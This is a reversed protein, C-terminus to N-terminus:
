SANTAAAVVAVLTLFLSGVVGRAAMAPGIIWSAEGYRYAVYNALCFIAAGLFMGALGFGPSILLLPISLFILAFGVGGGVRMAARGESLIPAEATAAAAPREANSPDPVAAASDDFQWEMGRETSSPQPLLLNPIRQEAASGGVWSGSAVAAGSSFLLLGDDKGGIRRVPTAESGRLSITYEDTDAWDDASVSSLSFYLVLGPTRAGVDWDPIDHLYDHPVDSISSHGFAKLALQRGLLRTDQDDWTKHRKALKEKRASAPRAGRKLSSVDWVDASRFAFSSM